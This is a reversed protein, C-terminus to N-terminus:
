KEIYEKIKLAVDESFKEAGKANLHQSNYFYQKLKSLDSGSYDLFLVNYELAVDKFIKFIEKRNLTLEYNEYYEPSYVLIIKIGNSKALEIIEKLRKIESEKIERNIGQPNNKKYSDFSGDWKVERPLFGKRINEHYIKFKLYRYLYGYIAKKTIEKGHFFLDYLPVHRFKWFIPDIEVLANYIDREHLYGIYQTPQYIESSAFSTIDLNQIIIDPKRNNKLFARLVALQLRLSTGDLGINFCTKGTVKEIVDPDYHVFARSSGTVLIKSNIEGSFVNHLVGPYERFGSIIIFYLLLFIVSFLIIPRIKKWM